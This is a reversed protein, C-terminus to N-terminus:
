EQKTPLVLDKGIVLILDYSSGTKGQVSLFDMLPKFEEPKGVVTPTKGLAQQLKKVKEPAGMMDIIYTKEYDMRDANGPAGLMLRAQSLFASTERAIGVKGSGNLALVRIEEPGSREQGRLMEDVIAEIMVPDPDLYWGEVQSHRPEGDLTRIKVDRATLGRLSQALANMQPFVINTSIYQTAEIVFRTIEQSHNFKIQQLLAFILQQQRRIRQLDTGNKGRYRVYHLAKTGDMRQLGPVIDIHLDQIKDDYKLRETVNMQVGGLLDILKAFGEYDIVIHYDIPIGLAASIVERAKKAGGIAYAANVKREQGDPFKLRLDRPISVVRVDKGKVSVVAISDSRKATAGQGINDVGLVLINTRVTPTKDRGGIAATEPFFLGNLWSVLAVAAVLILVSALIV